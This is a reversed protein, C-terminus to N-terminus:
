AIALTFSFHTGKDLESEVKYTENHLDLISKVITLGLGSGSRPNKGKHFRRFVFPLDEESIGTGTDRVHVKVKNGSKELGITIKDGENCFKISNGILNQLVRDILAIDGKVSPIGQPIDAVLEIKASNAAIKFHNTVDFVLDQISFNEINLKREKNELKSLEFLEDVLKKLKATSQLTTNLYKEQQEKDLDDKKMLLTEIYGHISALPTRLDHSVNAVLENRMTEVELREIALKEQRKLISKISFFILVGIITIFIISLFINFMIQKRAKSLFSDFTEEVQLVGVTEGMANIVPSIASLRKEEGAEYLGVLGGKKYLSDFSSPKNDLEELWDVKDTHVAYFYKEQGPQKVVTFMESPVKTMMKAMALQEHIKKYTSDALASDAMESNPYRYVLDNHEEGSIRYAVANAICDLKFMEEEQYIQVERYYSNIATYVAILTIAILTYILIRNTSSPNM